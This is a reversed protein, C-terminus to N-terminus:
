KFTIRQMVNKHKATLTISISVRYSSNLFNLLEITSSPSILLTRKMSEHQDIKDSVRQKQYM